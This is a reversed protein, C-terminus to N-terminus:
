DCRFHNDLGAPPLSVAAEFPSNACDVAPVCPPQTLHHGASVVSLLLGLFASFGVNMYKLLKQIKSGDKVCGDATDLIMLVGVVGAASWMIKALHDLVKADGLQRVYAGGGGLGLGVIATLLDTVKETRLIVEEFGVLHWTLLFQNLSLFAIFTLILGGEILYAQKFQPRLYTWCTYSYRHACEPQHMEISDGVIKPLLFFFHKWDKKARKRLQRLLKKKKSFLRAFWYVATCMMGLMGMCYFYILRDSYTRLGIQGLLCLALLVAGGILLTHALGHLDDAPQVSIAAGILMAGLAMTLFNLAVLLRYGYRVQLHNETRTLADCADGEDATEWQQKRGNWVAGEEREMGAICNVLGQWRRAGKTDEAPDCIDVACCGGGGGGGGGGDIDDDHKNKKGDGDDDHSEAAPGDESEPESGPEAKEALEIDAADGAAESGGRRDASVLKAM